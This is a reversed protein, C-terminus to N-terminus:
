DRATRTANYEAEKADQMIRGNVYKMFIERDFKNRYEKRYDEIYSHMKEKDKLIDMIYGLLM